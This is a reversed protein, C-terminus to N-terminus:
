RAFVYRSFSKVPTKVELTGKNVNPRIEASEVIEETGDSKVHVLKINNVDIGSLDLNEYKIKLELDKNFEMGDPGFEISNHVDTLDVEFNISNEEFSNSPVKLEGKVKIGDIETKFKIKGGSQGITENFVQQDSNSKKVFSNSQLSIMELNNSDTVPNVLSSDQACGFIFFLSVVLLILSHRM